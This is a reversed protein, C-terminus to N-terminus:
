VQMYTLSKWQRCKSSPFLLLWFVCLSLQFEFSRAYERHFYYLTPFYALSSSFKFVLRTRWKDMLEKNKKEGEFSASHQARWTEGLQCCRCNGTEKKEKVKPASNVLTETGEFKATQEIKLLSTPAPWEKTDREREWIPWKKWLSEM